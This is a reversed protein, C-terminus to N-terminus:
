VDFIRVGKFLASLTSLILTTLGVDAHPRLERDRSGRKM